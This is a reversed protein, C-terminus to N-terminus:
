TERTPLTKRLLSPTLKKSTSAEINCLKCFVLVNLKKKEWPFETLM